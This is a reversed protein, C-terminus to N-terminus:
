ATELHLWDLYRERLLDCFSNQNFILDFDSKEEIAQSGNPGQNTCNAM